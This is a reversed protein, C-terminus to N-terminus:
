VVRPSSFVIESTALLDCVQPPLLYQVPRHPLEAAVSGDTSFHWLVATGYYMEIVLQRPAKADRWFRRAVTTHKDAPLEPTGGLAGNLRLPTKSPGTRSSRLWLAAQIIDVTTAFLARADRWFRRAAAM